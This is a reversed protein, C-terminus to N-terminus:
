FRDPHDRVARLKDSREDEFGVGIMAKEIGHQDMLELVRAVPDAVEEHHPVHQFMYQAPFEYDKSEERLQPKLFEYWHAQDAGPLDLMLDIIGIGSPMAM